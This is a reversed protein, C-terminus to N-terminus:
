MAKIKCKINENEKFSKPLYDLCTICIDIAKLMFDEDNLLSESVYKINPAYKKIAYLSFITNAKLVPSAYEYAWSDLEVLRYMFQINGSLEKSIYKLIYISNNKNLLEYIFNPDNKLSEDAYSFSDYDYYIACEVVDKDAKLRNSTYKLISGNKIYDWNNNIALLIIEKDDQLSKSAYKIYSGDKKLAPIILEKVSYFM